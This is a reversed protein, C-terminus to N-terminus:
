DGLARLGRGAADMRGGQRVRGVRSMTEEHTQVGPEADGDQLLCASHDKWIAFLTGKYHSGLAPNKLSKFFFGM